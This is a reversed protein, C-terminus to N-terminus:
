GTVAFYHPSKFRLAHYSDPRSAIEAVATRLAEFTGIENLDLAGVKLTGM